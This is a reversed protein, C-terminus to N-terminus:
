RQTRAPNTPRLSRTNGQLNPHCHRKLTTNRVECVQERDQAFRKTRGIGFIGVGIASPATSNASMKNKSAGERMQVLFGNYVADDREFPVDWIGELSVVKGSM